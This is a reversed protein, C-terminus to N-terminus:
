PTAGAFEVKGSDRVCSQRSTDMSLVVGNPCRDLYDLFMGVTAGPGPRDTDVLRDDAHRLSSVEGIASVRRVSGNVGEVFLNAYGGVARLRGLLISLPEEELAVVVPFGGDDSTVLLDADALAGCALNWDIKRRLVDLRADNM